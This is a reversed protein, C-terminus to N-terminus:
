PLTKLEQMSTAIRVRTIENSGSLEPQWDTALFGSSLRFPSSDEVSRTDSLTGDAYINLTVPYAKANVSAWGMSLPSAMRYIRSSWLYSLPSGHNFRVINGGQAMYLTDSRNDSYAATVETAANLDSVTWFPGNGSMNLILTGRSGDARTFFAIYRRDYVFAHFSAPNLQQWEERTAFQETIVSMGSAGISVLGDPSAYLIGDGTEVLSTKSVCAQALELRAPSMAAPDAGYLAFPFSTTVAIVTQQFSGVAVIPFDIPYKNPWAHPLNPESMYVVNDMFGVAAGSSVIKLGKLGDPPAIWNESPLVEGLNAQLITDTYTTQAIPLEVVFQFQAASGVTSSRYLRRTAINYAGSPVTSLNSVYVPQGADITTPTAAASPPGEEGYASVFTEVYTRTEGLAAVSPVSGTLAPTNSPAPLGLDYSTGPYSSGSIITSNVGYQPKIGDTWYARGWQDNPIPSNIVDTDNLFELWYENENSSLGYRWITKPNTKTLSKLTTTGLLPKLTGSNLIVNQAMVAKGVPLLLPDLVPQMGDFTNIDISAM